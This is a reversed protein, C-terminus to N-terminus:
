MKRADERGIVLLKRSHTRCQYTEHLNQYHSGLLTLNYSCNGGSEAQFHDDFVQM